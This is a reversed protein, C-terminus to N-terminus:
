EARSESFLSDLLALCSCSPLAEVPYLSLLVTPQSPWLSMPVVAEGQLLWRDVPVSALARHWLPGAEPIVVDLAYATESVDPFQQEDRPYLGGQRRGLWGAVLRGLEVTDIVSSDSGGGASVWGSGGALLLLASDRADDAAGSWSEDDPPQRWRAALVDTFLRGNLWAREEILPHDRWAQQLLEYPCPLNASDTLGSPDFLRGLWRRGPVGWAQVQGLRGALDGDPHVLCAALAPVLWAERVEESYDLERHWQPEIDDSDRNERLVHCFARTFVRELLRQDAEDLGKLVMAETPPIQQLIRWLLRLTTPQRELLRWVNRHYLRLYQYLVFCRAEDGSAWGGAGHMAWAACLSNIFNKIKRPNPELLREIDAALHQREQELQRERGRGGARAPIAHRQLQGLISRVVGEPAPLPINLTAQFLKELYERNYDESRGQWYRDLADMVASDDLGLVFVCRRSGLYLKIVELLRVVVGEECRDLDDIFIILRAKPDLTEGDDKGARLLEEVADEFLLHFRQGDSLDTLPQEGDKWSKRLDDGLGRVMKVPRGASVSVAADAVYELLKVAALGARRSIRVAHYGAWPAGDPAEGLRREFQAKIERVLPVLPNPEGQHQWPSFWICLTQDLWSQYPSAWPHASDRLRAALEEWDSGDPREQGPGTLLRPLELPRGGLTAFARRLVSTKGSGWKGIVGLAFPADAELLTRAVQDGVQGLGFDDHLSWSDNLYHIDAPPPSDAADQQAQNDM